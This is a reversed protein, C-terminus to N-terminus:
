KRVLITFEYLGYDHLLAVHRSFNRKCHDFLALPDAYYLDPRMKEPDSYSTLANFAFGRTSLRHFEDLTELLYTLWDANSIDLRVNFLGSALVYHVQPFETLDATFNATVYPPLDSVFKRATQVMEPSADYGVYAFNDTEPDAELDILYLALAGYGCGFDLISHPESASTGLDLVRCLERFRLEQSHTSNWDVGRPTPGHERLKDAYYAAARAAIDPRSPMPM